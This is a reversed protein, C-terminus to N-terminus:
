QKAAKFEEVRYLRLTATDSVLKLDSQKDLYSYAAYDSDKALLVYKIQIQALKKSLTTSQAAQPLIRSSLYEKELNTVAPGVNGIEPNDGVLTPTDFYIDGPNAILRGAFDFRMYLHWPLFLVKYNDKDQNLQDNVAYWDAPYHRPALQSDFGMFMAPTFGVFVLLLMLGIIIRGIKGRIKAFLIPIAFGIFVAFCLAVLAAFKQPERYGAFFPVYDALWSTGVGTALIAAVVFICTFLVAHSRKRKWAVVAGMVVLIWVAIVALGWVRLEDQPMIFLDNREGWFGQLRLVHILKSAVGDGGTAFASQDSTQFTEISDATAGHGVAFPLLWYSSAIAFAVIAVVGYGVLRRLHVVNSRNHWLSQITAFLAIVLLLGLTHISVLSVIVALTALIAAGKLQPKNLFRILAVVFFPICAYGLLVSYQGAMFRSYTFPNVMYILGSTYAAFNAIRPSIDSRQLSRTLRHAGIGSLALIAFLIIKEIIDSPIVLSVVHLFVRFFYSSTVTEPMAIKPAFIMDLTLIFGPGLLPWLVLLAVVSYFTLEKWNKSITKPIGIM